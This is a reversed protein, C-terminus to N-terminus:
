EATALFYNAITQSNNIVALSWITSSNVFMGPILVTSQAIFNAVQNNVTGNLTVQSSQDAELYVFQKAYEYITLADTTVTEAPLPSTSYFELMEAQVGVIRYSGQTVISFGGTITLTDDIQVGTASFIQLQNAFDAGLTIRGEPVGSPNNITFSTTTFSILSYVGNNNLSFINLGPNVVDGIQVSDGAQAGTLDLPTVTFGGTLTTIGASPIQSGDGATLAVQNSPQNTNWTAIAASITTSGDFTLEISNGVNGANVATLTVAPDTGPIVGSFSAFTSPASTFTLLPGNQTVNFTSTADTGLSRPTRFNPATSSVYSLTYTNTSGPILAIAYVTTSDQLLVRSGDFIIRAEGPALAFSASHPSGVPLNNINKTWKFPIMSPNNSPNLDSSAQLYFQASFNPM